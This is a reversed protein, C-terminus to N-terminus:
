KLGMWTQISSNGRIGYKDLIERKSQETEVYEAIIKRKFEEPYPTRPGSRVKSLDKKIM